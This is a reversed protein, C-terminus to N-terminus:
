FKVFKQENFKKKNQLARSISIDISSRSKLHYYWLDTYPTNMRDIRGCAQILVRYSYNMSYFIVTDCTICNWGEAGATYQVFYVWKESSPVPQHCRGNWEGIVFDRGFYMNKLIDLEYNYNYFIIARNKTKLIELIAAQRSPDSNVTRRLAFILESATKFPVGTEPNQRRKMLFKYTDVDYECFIDSHHQVTSRSFLIDVLLSNRLRILKGTNLYREIKPFKTVRSFVAHENLFQTRNKYYGNAIFVPIYDEWKDGPTASLLIWENNKAIKLFSKVWAGKGVVRQEDFIFFSDKVDSYKKINNWSDIVVSDTENEDPNFILLEDEWERDDRKRATTIIYLKKFTVSPDIYLACIEDTVRKLKSGNRIYYYTLSTRSKGSGVGGCLIRGNQLLYVADEQHKSFDFLTEKAEM